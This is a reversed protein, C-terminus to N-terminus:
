GFTPPALLQNIKTTFATTTVSTIAQASLADALVKSFIASDIDIVQCSMVVVAVSSQATDTQLWSVFGEIESGFVEWVEFQDIKTPRVKAM